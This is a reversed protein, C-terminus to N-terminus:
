NLWPMTDIVKGKKVIILTGFNGYKLLHGEAGVGYKLQGRLSLDVKYITGYPLVDFDFEYKKELKVGEYIAAIPMGKYKGQIYSNAVNAGYKKALDKRLNEKAQENHKRRLEERWETYEKQTYMRSTADVWYYGFDNFPKDDSCNIYIDVIERHKNQSLIKKVKDFIGVDGKPVGIIYIDYNMFSSAYKGSKLELFDKFNSDYSNNSRDKHVPNEPPLNISYGNELKIQTITGEFSGQVVLKRGNGLNVEMNDYYDYDLSGQEKYIRAWRNGLTDVYLIPLPKKVNRQVIYKMITKEKSEINIFGRDAQEYYRDKKILPYSCKLESIGNLGITRYYSALNPKYINEEYSKFNPFLRRFDIDVSGKIDTTITDKLTFDPKHNQNTQYSRFQDDVKYCVNYSIVGNRKLTITDSEDFEIYGSYKGFSDLVFDNVRVRNAEFIGSILFGGIKIKGYEIPVGKKMKGNYVHGLYVKEKASVKQPQFFSLLTFVSILLFISKKM